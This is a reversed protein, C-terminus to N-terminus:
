RGNGALPNFLHILLVASEWGVPLVSAAALAVAPGAWQYLRVTNVAMVLQGYALSLCVVVIVATMRDSVLVALVGAGWPAIMAVPDFLHDAHARRASGLPDALAQSNHTDPGAPSLLRRVVPMVAGALLLPDLCFAAAFIPATEKMCGAVVVVVM